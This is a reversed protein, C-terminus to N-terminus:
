ILRKCACTDRYALCHLSIGVLPPSVQFQFTVASRAFHLLLRSRTKHSTNGTPERDLLSAILM